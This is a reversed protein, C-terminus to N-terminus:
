RGIGHITEARVTGTAARMLIGDVLAYECLEKLGAAGSVASLCGYGEM